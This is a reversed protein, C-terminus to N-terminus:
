PSAPLARLFNIVHWRDEESLVVDWSPMPGRGIAIKWFLRGDSQALIAPSALDAPLVGLSLSSPGDGHGREGHCVACRQGFIMAGQGRSGQSLPVPNSILDAEEPVTWEASVASIREGISLASLSLAMGVM